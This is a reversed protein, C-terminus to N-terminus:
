RVDITVNFVGQNDPSTTTTSAWIFGARARPAFRVATVLAHGACSNGIRAILGGAPANPVPAGAARRGSEAGSGVAFDGPNDSLRISGDRM